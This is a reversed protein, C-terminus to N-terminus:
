KIKNFVEEIDCSMDIYIQNENTNHLEKLVNNYLDNDIIKTDKMSKGLGSEFNTYDYNPLKCVWSFAIKRFMAIHMLPFMIKNLDFPESEKKLLIKLAPYQKVNNTLQFVSMTSIRCRYGALELQEIKKVLRGYFDRITKEKVYAGYGVDILIDIVKTKIKTFTTDYMANPLNMIANPVNVAFGQVNTITRQRKKEKCYDISINQTAKFKQLGESWGRTFLQSAEEWSVNGSWSEKNKMDKIAYFGSGQLEQREKITEILQNYNTYTELYLM